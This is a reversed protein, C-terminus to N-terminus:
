STAYLLGAAVEDRVQKGQLQEVLKLAFAMATAPGQSTIINGDVVVPQNLYQMNPAPHQDIVGPYSTAQKGDLLGAAVLVKPAACIAAVLRGAQAQRKLMARLHINQELYDAGPLGGPLAICDFAQKEVEELSTDAVLLTGRSAQVVREDDLAVRTVEVEGRVLIDMITVAELEECGQALPIMATKM